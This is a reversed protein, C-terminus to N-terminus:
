QRRGYCAALEDGLRMLAAVEAASLNSIENKAFMTLLFVPGAGVRYFHISRFGGSTGAGTRGFRVKRLGGGLSVGTDPAAALLDILAMRETETMVAKARRVFDPMEVVAVLTM